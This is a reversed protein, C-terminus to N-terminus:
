DQFEKIKADIVASECVDVLSRLTGVGATRTKNLGERFMTGFGGFVSKGKGKKGSKKKELEILDKTKQLNILFVETQKECRM